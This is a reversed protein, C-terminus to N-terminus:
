INNRRNLEKKVLELERSSQGAISTNEKARRFLYPMVTEIPGYPVYKVVNYGANALNFSIHDSMGYLQSFYIRQDNKAIKNNKILEILLYNSAENHSGMCLELNNINEVCYKLGENFQLGTSKKDTLIPDEYSKDKARKREKEMYAGRVLKAGIQYGNAKGNENAEKLKELMNIRYMQFTNFVVVKTKNYKEMLEYVLNDIAYQYYSEESDIYLKVNHEFCSKAIADFRKRVKEFIKKEIDNLKKKQHLKMLLDKSAIGTPKFVCFSINDDTAAYEVTNLVESTIKDYNLEESNGEAAFDLISEINYESLIKIINKCQEISEGGCFQNYITNRIIGIIPIKVKLAFKVINAGLKSLVPNNILSFLLYSKKLEKVSKYSFAISTDEFSIINKM